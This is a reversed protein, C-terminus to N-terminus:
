KRFLAFLGTPIISTIICTTILCYFAFVDRKVYVDGLLQGIWPSKDRIMCTLGILVLAAGSIIMGKGRKSFNM